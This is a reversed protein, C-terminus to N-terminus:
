AKGRHMTSRLPDPDATPAVTIGPPFPAPGHGPPRFGLEDALAAVPGIIVTAPSSIAAAAARQVIDGLTGVVTRQGATSAAQVVAVPTDAPRGASVLGSTITALRGLGMLVVITHDIAALAEYSVAGRSLRAADHGTVITVAGSLARHTLSIGSLGSAALAASIGPVLEYPVGARRLAQMEEGGRGFIGPDGGKLRVVRRGQRAAHVLMAAIGGQRALHHGSRKGVHVRLASPAALALIERTILADHFVIEASRLLRLARCTLLDPDGPGAGVLYVTGPACPVGGPGDLHESM